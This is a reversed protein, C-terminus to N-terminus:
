IFFTKELFPNVINLQYEKSCWLPFQKRKSRFAYLIFNLLAPYAIYDKNIPFLDYIKNALLMNIETNKLIEVNKLKNEIDTFDNTAHELSLYLKLLNEIHTLKKDFVDAHNIILDYYEELNINEKEQKENLLHELIKKQFIPNQIKYTRKNLNDNGVSLVIGETNENIDLNLENKFYTWLKLDDNRYNFITDIQNFNLNGSWLIKINSINLTEAINQLENNTLICGDLSLGSLLVIDNKYQGHYKIIHNNKNIDFIEFNLISYQYLIDLYQNLYNYIRYYLPNMLLDFDSIKNAVPKYPNEGRKGYVIHGNDNYIQFANGDIKETISINSSLINKYNIRKGSGNLLEKLHQM